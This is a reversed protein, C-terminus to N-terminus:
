YTSVSVASKPLRKGREKRAERWLVEFGSMSEAQRGVQHIADQLTWEKYWKGNPVFLKDYETLKNQYNSCSIMITSM